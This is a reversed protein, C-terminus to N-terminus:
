IVILLHDNADVVTSWEVWITNEIDGIGGGIFETHEAFACRPDFQIHNINATNCGSIRAYDARLIRAVM